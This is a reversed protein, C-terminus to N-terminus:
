ADLDAKTFARAERTSGRQERHPGGALARAMPSLEELSLALTSSFFEAAFGNALGHEVSELTIAAALLTAAGIAVLFGVGGYLGVVLGAGRRGRLGHALWCYGLWFLLFPLSALGIIEAEHM